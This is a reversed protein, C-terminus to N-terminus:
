FLYPRGPMPVSPEWHRLRRGAFRTTKTGFYNRSLWFPTNVTPAIKDLHPLRPRGFGRTRMRSCPSSARPKWRSPPASAGLASAAAQRVKADKDKLSATLAPVAARSRTWLKGLSAAAFARVRSDEDGLLKILAPVATEGNMFFSGVAAAAAQRVGGDKDKLLEVVAPASSEAWPGMNGLAAVAAARVKAEKDKLSKALAPVAADAYCPTKGLASAAALRVKTDGDDLLKILTPVADAHLHGLATAAEGRRAADKSEALAKWQSLTKGQYDPEKPQATPTSKQGAGLCVGVILFALLAGLPKM